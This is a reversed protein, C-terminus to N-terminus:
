WLTTRQVACGPTRSGSFDAGELMFSWPTKKTECGQVGVQIGFCIALYIGNPHGSIHTCCYHVIWWDDYITPLWYVIGLWPHNIIGVHFWWGWRLIWCFRWWCFDPASRFRPPRHALLWCSWCSSASVTSRGPWGPRHSGEVMSSFWLFGYSFWLFIITEHSPQMSFPSKMSPFPTFM